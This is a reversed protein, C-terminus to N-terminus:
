GDALNVAAVDFPLAKLCLGIRVRYPATAAWRSHLLFREAM